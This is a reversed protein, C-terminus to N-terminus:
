ILNIMIENQNIIEGGIITGSNSLWCDNKTGKIGLNSCFVRLTAIM